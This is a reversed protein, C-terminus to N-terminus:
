RKPLMFFFRDLNNKFCNVSPSNIIEASLASWDTAVRNALFHSRAACNDILPAELRHAAGRLGGAPGLQSLSPALTAPKIFNVKNIEHHIARVQPFKAALEDAIEATRDKSGDNVIIIEYDDSIQRATDLAECTVKEVNQEENYCPFFITIPYKRM